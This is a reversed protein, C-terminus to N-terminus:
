TSMSARWPSCSLLECAQCSAITAVRSCCVDRISLTCRRRCALLQPVCGHVRDGFGEFQASADGGAVARCQAVARDGVAGATEFQQGQAVGGDAAVRCLAGAQGFQRAVEAGKLIDALQGMRAIGDARQALAKEVQQDLTM